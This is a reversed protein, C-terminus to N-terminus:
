FPQGGKKLRPIIEIWSIRGFHLNKTSINPRTSKAILFIGFVEYLIKLLFSFMRIFSVLLVFVNTFVLVSDAKQNGLLVHNM